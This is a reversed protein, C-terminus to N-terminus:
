YDDGKRLKFMILLKKIWRLAKQADSKNKFGICQEWLFDYQVGNYKKIM